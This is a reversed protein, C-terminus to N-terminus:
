RWPATSSLVKAGTGGKGGTGTPGCWFPISPNVEGVDAPDIKILAPDNYACTDADTEGQQQM